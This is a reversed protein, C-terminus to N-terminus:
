KISIVPVPSSHVNATYTATSKSCSSHSGDDVTLTVQYTGSKAYKHDTIVEQSTTGDGFDWFYWLDDGDADKSSSANFEAPIDVCCVKSAGLDAVPQSNIQITTNATATSCGTGRKDDVIVSVQYEGGQNYTHSVKAGRRLITGDGFNWYYELEDGDPDTASSADFEVENGTCGSSVTKIDVTPASNILIEKTDRSTPCMKNLKDEIDLHARYKGPQAYKHTIQFGDATEGDGFTWTATTTGKKGSFSNSGDFTIEESPCAVTDAGADAKPAQNIRVTVFDIASGCGLNHGDKVILKADYNGPKTYQHTTKIGNGEQGDGFDWSYTLTDNNADSSQSADFAVNMEQDNNICLLIEPGGAEAIPPENIFINKEFSNTSCATKSEDDVNLTVKYNGGRTFTKSAISHNDSTGDGFDWHVSLKRNNTSSSQSSDFTLPENICAQESANFLATPPINARVLQTSVATSCESNSNDTVSLKVTYDGSKQYTHDIISENSKEGDGFDWEYTLNKNDPNKSASADFTFINCRSSTIPEDAQSNKILFFLCICLLLSLPYSRM